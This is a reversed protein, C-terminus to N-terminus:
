IATVDIQNLTSYCTVFLTIPVIDEISSLNITNIFVYKLNTVYMFVHRANFTLTSLKYPFVNNVVFFPKRRM